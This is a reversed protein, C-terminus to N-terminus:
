PPVAGSRGSRRGLGPDRAAYVVGMGGAGLREEIVFRGVTVGPTLETAAAAPRLGRAIERLLPDDEGAEGTTAAVPSDDDPTM